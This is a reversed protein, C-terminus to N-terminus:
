ASALREALWLDCLWDRGGGKRRTVIIGEPGSSVTVRKSTAEFEASTEGVVVETTGADEHGGIRVVVPRGHRQGSLVTWGRLRYDFGPQMWRMEFGGEPQDTVQLGLPAMARDTLEYSGPIAGGPGIARFAGYLAALVILPGGILLPVFSETLYIAPVTLFILITVVIGLNQSGRAIGWIEDRARVAAADIPRIAMAAWLEPEELATPNEVEHGGEAAGRSSQAADTGSARNLDARQLAFLGLCFLAVVGFILGLALKPNPDGQGMTLAIVAVLAAVVFVGVIGFTGSRKFGGSVGPLSDGYHQVLAPDLRQVHLRHPPGFQVLLALVVHEELGRRDPRQEVAGVVAVEAEGLQGRVAVEPQARQVPEVALHDGEVALEQSGVDLAPDVRNRGRRLRRERHHRPELRGDVDLELAREVVSRQQGPEVLQHRSSGRGARDAEVPVELQDAGARDGGLLRRVPRQGLHDGLLVHELQTSTAPM